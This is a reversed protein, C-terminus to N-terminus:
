RSTGNIPEVRGGDIMADLDRPDLLVKGGVRFFACRREAILRRLYRASLGRYGHAEAVTWLQAPPMTGLSRATM